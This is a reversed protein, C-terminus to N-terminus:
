GSGAVRKDISPKNGLKRGALHKIDSVTEVNKKRFEPTSRYHCTLHLSSHLRPELLRRWMTPAPRTMIVTSKLTLTDGIPQMIPMVNSSTILM